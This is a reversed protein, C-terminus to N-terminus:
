CFLLTSPLLLIAIVLHGKACVVAIHYLDIDPPESAQPDGVEQGALVTRNRKLWM